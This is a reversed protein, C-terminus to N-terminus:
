ELGVRKRLEMRKEERLTKIRRREVLVLALYVGCSVLFMAFLVFGITLVLELFAAM